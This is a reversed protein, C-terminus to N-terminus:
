ARLIRLLEEFNRQAADALIAPMLATMTALLALAALMKIPFALTLLQLQAQMRGFLALALDVLMLLAVVPMALKMGTVFMGAGLRVVGDVSRMTVPFSGVPFWAFSGAFIRIVQRDLGLAFFLLGATLQAFLQLVTSDAQSNPDLASAYSYGAQLNIIQAALEFGEVLFAVALGVLIGFTAEAIVWAALLPLPPPATVDLKPWVPFLCLTLALS